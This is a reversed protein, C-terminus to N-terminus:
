RCGVPPGACLLLGAPAESPGRVGHVHRRATPAVRLPAHQTSQATRPSQAHHPRATFEAPQRSQAALGAHGARHPVEASDGADQSSVAPPHLHIQPLLLSLLHLTPHLLHFSCFSCFQLFCLAKKAAPQVEQRCVNRQVKVGEAGGGEKWM